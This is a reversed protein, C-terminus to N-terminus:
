DHKEGQERKSQVRAMAIAWHARWSPGVGAMDAISAVKADDLVDREQAMQLLEQISVHQREIIRHQREIISILISMFGVFLFAVWWGSSTYILYSLGAAALATVHLPNM